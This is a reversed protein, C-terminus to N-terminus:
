WSYSENSDGAINSSRKLTVQSDNKMGSKLKNFPLPSLKLQLTNYRTM